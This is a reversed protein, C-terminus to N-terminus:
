FKKFGKIKQYNKLTELKEIFEDKIQPFSNLDYFKANKFGENLLVGECNKELDKHTRMKFAIGEKILLEFMISKKGHDFYKPSYIFVANYTQDM